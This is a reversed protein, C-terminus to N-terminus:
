IYYQDVFAILNIYNSINKQEVNVSYKNEHKEYLRIKKQQDRIVCSKKFLALKLKSINEQAKQLEISNQCLREYVNM